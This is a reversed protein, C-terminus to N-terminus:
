TIKAIVINSNKNKDFFYLLVIIYKDLIYKAIKLNCVFIFLVITCISINFVQIKFFNRDILVIKFNTNLCVFKTKFDFFLVICVRTYNWDCFNYKIDINKCSNITFLIISIDLELITKFITSIDVFFKKLEIKILM